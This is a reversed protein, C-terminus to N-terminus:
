RWYNDGITLSGQTGSISSYNGNLDFCGDLLFGGSCLNNTTNIVLFEPRFGGQTSSVTIDATPGQATFQFWTDLTGEECGGSGLFNTSSPSSTPCSTGNLTPINIATACNDQAFSFLALTSFMTPLILEYSSKM